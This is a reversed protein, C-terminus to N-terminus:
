RVEYYDALAEVNVQQWRGESPIETTQVGGYTTIGSFSVGEWIARATDALADLPGRGEEVPSFVQVIISCQRRYQRNGPAGLTDQNSDIHRVSLRAWAEQPEEMPEGDFYLDGGWNDSWRQYIAERAETLTM